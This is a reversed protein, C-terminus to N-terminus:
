CTIEEPKYYNDEAELNPLRGLIDDESYLGYRGEPDQRRVYLKIHRNVYLAGNTFPYEEGGTIDPNMGNQYVDRWVYRCTGDRLVHAYPPCNLNDIKFLRIDTFSTPITYGSMKVGNDNYIECVFTRDKNKDSMLVVLTCLFDNSEKYLMAKDGVTLFHRELTTVTLTYNSTGRGSETMSRVTLFDPMISNLAGFSRIPVEYHPQYYYGEKYSHVVESTGTAMVFSAADFDDSKLIDYNYTRFKPLSGGSIIGALERQAPSFRHMIYQLTTETDNYGDYCVLDGYFNNDEDFYIYSNEKPDQTQRGNLWACDEGFAGDTSMNNIGKISTLDSEVGEETLDFACTIPGFCHSYEIEKMYDEKVQTTATASTLASLQEQYWKKYGKNNKVITLYLSTLPRGRNDRLYSLDIDDTYVIQAINDSYVNKSFALRSLHNEFDHDVGQNDKILKENDKYLSEESEPYGSSFKFNPLKSFIRVYYECRVGNSLKAYSINVKMRSLNVYQNNVIYYKRGNRVSDNTDATYYRHSDSLIYTFSEPDDDAQYVIQQPLQDLGLYYWDNSIKQSQSDVCFTYEDAIETVRAAGLVVTTEFWVPTTNYVNVYDGVQLGHKAISYIVTQPTNSDNYTNEDFFLAKLTFLDDDGQILDPLSTTASSPYTICYNWNKEIRKQFSNYKPIFSYLDRSPYMDIFDGGEAYALVRELGMDDADRYEDFSKINSKNRFGVWGDFGAVLRKERCEDFTYLDDYKYLHLPTDPRDGLGSSIPYTITDQITNGEVDRMFDEITNFYPHRGTDKCVSKFSHNRLMHNNFINEGCHYVYGLKSLQTDRVSQYSGTWATMNDDKFVVGDIKGKPIGFNVVSMETSGEDKVVETIKNFLVNSCVTDIQFTLRVKTSSAREELYQEYASVNEFLDDQPLLKRRGSLSTILGESTNVSTKSRYQELLIRKHM